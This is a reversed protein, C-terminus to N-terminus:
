EVKNHYVRHSHEIQRPMSFASVPRLFGIIRTWWDINESGCKPCKKIAIHAVNGCDKCESFPVNFTFYNVGKSIAYDIIKLYQEKSLDEELNLHCSQKYYGIKLDIKM